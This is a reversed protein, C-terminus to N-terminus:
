SGTVERWALKIDSLEVVATSLNPLHKMVAALAQPDTPDAFGVLVTEGEWRIPIAAAAAGVSAPLLRAVSPNVGILRINIYPIEFQESLVRALEDEFILRERLLVIGLLTGTARAEGLAWALDEDSILGKKTLLEGLRPPGAPPLLFLAARDARSLQLAIQNINAWSSVYDEVDHDDAEAVVLEVTTPGRLDAVLGLRLFYDRLAVGVDAPDFTVHWRCSTAIAPAVSDTVM